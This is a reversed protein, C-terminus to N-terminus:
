GITQRNVMLRVQWLNPRLTPDALRNRRMQQPVGERRYRGSQNAVSKM